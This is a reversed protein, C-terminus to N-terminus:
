QIRTDVYIKTLWCWSVIRYEKSLCFEDIESNLAQEQDEVLLIKPRWKSWDNSELVELDKFECDIDMIDIAQRHFLNGFHDIQGHVLDVKAEAPRGFEQSVM